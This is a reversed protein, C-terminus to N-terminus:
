VKWLGWGGVGWCAGGGVPDGLLEKRVCPGWGGAAAWLRDGM